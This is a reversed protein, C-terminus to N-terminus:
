DELGASPADLWTQEDDTLPQTADCQVLLDALAYRKKPQPQIVLRGDEATVDVEAGAQLNLLALLPKPIAMVVSGGVARLTATPM